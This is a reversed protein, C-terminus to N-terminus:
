CRCTCSTSCSRAWSSPRVSTSSRARGAQLDRRRARGDGTGHAHGARGAGGRRRPRRLARPRGPHARAAARPRPLRRGRRRDRARSRLARRAAVGPRSTGRRLRAAPRAGAVHVGDGQRGQRARRRRPARPLRTARAGAAGPGPEIAVRRAPLRGAHHRPRTRGADRRPAGPHGHRVQPRARDQGGGSRRAGGQPHDPHRRPRPRRREGAHRRRLAPVAREPSRRRMGAGGLHRADRGRRRCPRAPGRPRAGPDRRGPGACRRAHHRGCLRHGGIRRDARVRAGAHPVRAHLLAHLLARAFRRPLDAGRCRLDGARRHPHHRARPEPARRRRAGAASRAAEQGQGPRGAHAARRALRLHCHPRPRGERRHGARGERQRQCRGHTGARRRGPRARRRVQDERGRRRVLRRRGEPQLRPDARRGTPLLGQRRDRHGRPLRGAGGAPGAHRHRRRGRLGREHPHARGHGPLGRAGLPDARGPGVAHARPQGQLRGRDADRFTASPLDFSAAIYAPRHDALLKRLMTIFGYVANTSRGDPGTLGRIAHYARYMQNSGDILFLSRTETM